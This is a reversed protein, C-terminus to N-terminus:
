LKTKSYTTAIRAKNSDDVTFFSLNNEAVCSFNHRVNNTINSKKKNYACANPGYERYKCIKM